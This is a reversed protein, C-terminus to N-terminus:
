QRGDMPNEPNNILKTPDVSSQLDVPEGYRVGEVVCM